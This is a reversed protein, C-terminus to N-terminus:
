LSHFRGIIFLLAVVLTGISAILGVFHLVTLFSVTPQNPSTEDLLSNLVVARAFILSIYNLMAALFGIGFLVVFFGVGKLAPVTVYDKLVSLCGVLGAGHAVFLYNATKLHNDYGDKMHQVLVDKPPKPM